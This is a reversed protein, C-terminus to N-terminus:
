GERVSIYRPNYKIKGKANFAYLYSVGVPLFFIKYVSFCEYSMFAGKDRIDTNIYCAEGEAVSAKFRWGEYIPNGDNWDCVTFLGRASTATAANNPEIEIILPVECDGTNNITLTQYRYGNEYINGYVRNEFEITKEGNLTSFYPDFARFTVSYVYDTNYAPQTVSPTNIFKGSITYKGDIELTCGSKPSLAAMIKRPNYKKNLFQITIDRSGFASGHYFEGDAGVASSSNVTETITGFDVTTLVLQGGSLSSAVEIVAGNENKVKIRM